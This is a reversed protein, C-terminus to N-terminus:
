TDLLQHLEKIFATSLDRRQAIFDFLWDYVQAQDHLYGVIEAPPLDTTGHSILDVHLGREILLETTGRDISYLGEIMGTDIAWRRRLREHLDTLEHRGELEGRREDWAAALSVLDSDQTRLDDSLDEIFRYAM